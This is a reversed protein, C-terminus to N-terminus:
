GPSLRDLRNNEQEKSEQKEGRNVPLRLHVRREAKVLGPLILPLTLDEMRPLGDIGIKDQFSEPLTLLVQDNIPKIGATRHLLLHM